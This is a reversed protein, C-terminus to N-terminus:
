SVHAGEPGEVCTCPEGSAQVVVDRGMFQCVGRAGLKLHAAVGEFTKKKKVQNATAPEQVVGSPSQVIVRDGPKASAPPALLRVVAKDSWSACLVMGDSTYGGLKAPKLNCVVVVRQGQFAEVAYHQQLGSAVPRPKDEGVDIEECLLKDSEPHKWAKTVVGVRVDLDNFDATEDEQPRKVATQGSSSAAKPASSSRAEHQPPTAQPQPPTPPLPPLAAAPEEDGAPRPRTIDGVVARPHKNVFDAMDMRLKIDPEGGGLVCLSHGPLNLIAEAVVIPMKDALLGGVPAVGNNEFGLVRQATALSALCPKLMATSSTAFGPIKKLTRKLASADLTATYQVVVLALHEAISEDADPEEAAQVVVDDAESGGVTSVLLTKLMHQPSQAGVLVARRALPLKYYTSADDVRM